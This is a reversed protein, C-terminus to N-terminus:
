KTFRFMQGEQGSIARILYLGQPLANIDIVVHGSNRKESQIVNGLVDILQFVCHSDQADFQVHDMAPNPYLNGWLPSQSSGEVGNWVQKKGSRLVPRVLVSGTVQSAQWPQDAGLAYFLKAPNNNTNKDNGVDYTPADSQVWGVYYTGVGLVLPNDLEHFTFSDYGASDTYQPYQYNFNESILSGPQGSNDNWM